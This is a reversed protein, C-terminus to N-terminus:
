KRIAELIHRYIKESSDVIAMQKAAKGMSELRADDNLLSTVTDYLKEGDCEPESVPVKRSWHAPM